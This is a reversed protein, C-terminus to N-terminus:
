NETPREIHRTTYMEIPATRPELRDRSRFDSTSM